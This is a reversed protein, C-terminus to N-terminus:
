FQSCQETKRTIVDSFSHETRTRGTKCARTAAGCFSLAAIPRDTGNPLILEWPMHTKETSSASWSVTRLANLQKLDSGQPPSNHVRYHVIKKLVFYFPLSGKTENQVYQHRAHIDAASQNKKRFGPLTLLCYQPYKPKTVVPFPYAPIFM